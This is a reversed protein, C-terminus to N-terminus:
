TLTRTVLVKGSPLLYYYQPSIADLQLCYIKIFDATVVALWSNKGPIWETKVIFNGSVFSRRNIEYNLLLELLYTTNSFFFHSLSVNYFLYWWFFM